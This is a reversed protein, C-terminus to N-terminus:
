QFYNEENVACARWCQVIHLLLYSTGANGINGIITGNYSEEINSVYLEM